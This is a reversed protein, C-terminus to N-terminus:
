RATAFRAFQDSLERVTAVQFAEAYAGHSHLLGISRHANLGICAHLYDAEGLQSKYELLAAKKLEITASVDVLCNPFLPTWVEYGMCRIESPAEGLAGLLVQTTARHDAHEELFSPLYVLQPRREDLVEALKTAAGRSSALAGDEADFFRVDRIGLHALALRAEMKRTATLERQTREREQTGLSYLNSAGYRGDTLFAVTIAAGRQAHLALTAGCGITEDDMHPALVLVREAGPEWVLASKSYVGSVRLLGSSRLYPRAARSLRKLVVKTLANM